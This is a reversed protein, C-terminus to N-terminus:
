GEASPLLLAEQEVEPARLLAQKPFASQVEEPADLCLRLEAGESLLESLEDVAIRLTTDIETANDKEQTFKALEVEQRLSEAKAEALALELEKEKRASQLQLEALEAQAEAQRARAEEQKARALEQETRAIEQARKNKVTALTILLGIVSMAATAAPAVIELWQSGVDVMSVQVNGYGLRRIPQDFAIHVRNLLKGLEDPSRQEEPLRIGLYPPELKTLLSQLFRDLLECQQALAQADDTLSRGAAEDIVTSAQRFIDHELLQRCAEDFFPIQGVSLLAARLQDRNEADIRGGGVAKTRLALGPRAHALLAQIDRTRM